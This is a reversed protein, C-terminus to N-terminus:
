KSWEFELIIKYSDELHLSTNINKLNLSSILNDYEISNQSYERVNTRGGQFSQYFVRYPRLPIGYIKINSIFPFEEKILTFNNDTKRFM